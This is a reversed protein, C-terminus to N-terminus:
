RDGGPILDHTRRLSPRGDDLDAGGQELDAGRPYTGEPYLDALAAPAAAFEHGSAVGADSRASWALWGPAGDGLREYEVGAELAGGRPVAVPPDLPLVVQGWPQTDPGPANSIWSEASVELDFWLALGHVIGEEEFVWRGDVALDEPDPPPLLRRVPGVVPEAAMASRPLFAPRPQNALYPRLAEWDIGYREAAGAPASSGPASGDAEARSDAEAGNASSTPGDADAPDDVDVPFLWRRLESSALPALQLRASRPVSRAGPALAEDALTRLTRFTRDDLLRRPFDEFVLVDIEEPFTVGPVRGRVFEISRELGNARAVWRALHVVPDSDVAWVRGAGARAAFFAFTGLGTGLDLVRDGARVAEHIAERFAEIRTDGALLRTYYDVSM